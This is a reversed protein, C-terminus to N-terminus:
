PHDVIRHSHQDLTVLSRTSLHDPLLLRRPPLEDVIQQATVGIDGPEDLASFGKTEIQSPVVLHQQGRRDLRRGPHVSDRHDHPPYDNVPEPIPADQDGGLVVQEHHEDGAVEAIHHRAPVDGVRGAENM